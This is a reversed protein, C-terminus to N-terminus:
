KSDNSDGNSLAKYTGYTIASKKAVVAPHSFGVTMIRGQAHLQQDLDAPHLFGHAIEKARGAKVNSLKNITKELGKTSDVSSLRKSITPELGHQKIEKAVHYADVPLHAAAKVGHYIDSGVHKWYKPKIYNSYDIDHLGQKVGALFGEQLLQILNDTNKLSM